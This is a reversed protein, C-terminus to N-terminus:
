SENKNFGSWMVNKNSWWKNWIRSICVMQQKEILELGCTEAIAAEEEGETVDDSFPFLCTLLLVSM